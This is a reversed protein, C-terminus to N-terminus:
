SGLVVLESVNFAHCQLARSFNTGVDHLRVRLEWTEIQKKKWALSKHRLFRLFLGGSMELSGFLSDELDDVVSSSLDM